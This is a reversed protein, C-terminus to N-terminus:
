AIKGGETGADVQPPRGEHQQQHETRRRIRLAHSRNRTGPNAHLSKAPKSRATAQGTTPRHQLPSADRNRRSLLALCSVAHRYLIERKQGEMIIVYSDFAKIKGSVRIKNQLTVTVTDQTPGLLDNLMRDLLNTEM